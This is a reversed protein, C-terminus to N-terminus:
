SPQRSPIPDIGNINICRLLDCVHEIDMTIVRLFTLNPLGAFFHKLGELDFESDYRRPGVLVLAEVGSTDFPRDMLFDALSIDADPMAVDLELGPTVHDEARHFARLTFRKSDLFLELRKIGVLARFNTAAADPLMNYGIVPDRPTDRTWLRIVTDKAISLQTLLEGTSGASNSIELKKLRPLVVALSPPPYSRTLPVGGIVLSELLPCQRLLAVMDQTSYMQDPFFNQRIELNVLVSPGALHPLLCMNRLRLTRLAQTSLVTGFLRSLCALTDASPNYAVDDSRELIFEELLSAVMWFRGFFADIRETSPYTMRLTRIRLIHPSILHAIYHMRNSPKTLYLDIPLSRSRQLCVSIVDTRNIQFASWLRPADLAIGRWQHCVHSAAIVHSIDGLDGSLGLFIELFIEPPLKNILAVSNHLQRLSVLQNQLLAVTKLTQDSQREVYLRVENPDM